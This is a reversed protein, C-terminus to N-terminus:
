NWNHILSRLLRAGKIALEHKVSKYYSFVQFLVGRCILLRELTRFGINHLQLTNNQSIIGGQNTLNKITICMHPPPPPPQIVNIAEYAPHKGNAWRPLNLTHSKHMFDLTDLSVKTTFIKVMLCYTPRFRWHKKVKKTSKNKWNEDCVNSKSESMLLHLTVNSTCIKLWEFLNNDTKHQKNRCNATRKLWLM